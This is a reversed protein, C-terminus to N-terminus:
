LETSRGEDVDKLAEDALADLKGDKADREFQADWLEADYKLFWDRFAALEDPDLRRVASEINQVSSM